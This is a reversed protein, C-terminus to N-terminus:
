ERNDLAKNVLKDADKNFERKVTVFSMLKINGKEKLNTVLHVIKQHLEQLHLQKVKYKGTIQHVILESDLVFRIKEVFLDLTAINELARIVATYEAVNNTTIGITESLTFVVNNESQAFVGIAAPGPNGRSGGDTNIQLLNINKTM